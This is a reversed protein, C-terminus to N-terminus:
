QSSKVLLERETTAHERAVRAESRLLVMSARAPMMVSIGPSCTRSLTGHFSMMFMRRVSEARMLVSSAMCPWSRESKVTTGLLCATWGM